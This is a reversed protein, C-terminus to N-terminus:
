VYLHRLRMTGGILIFRGPSLRGSKRGGGFFAAKKKKKKESLSVLANNLRSLPLSFGMRNHADIPPRTLRIPKGRPSIEAAYNYMYTYIYHAKGQLEGRVEVFLVAM